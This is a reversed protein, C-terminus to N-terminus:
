ELEDITEAAKEYYEKKNPYICTEVLRTLAEENRFPEDERGKLVDRRISVAKELM